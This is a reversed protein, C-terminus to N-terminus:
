SSDQSADRTWQPQEKRTTTRLIQLALKPLVRHVGVELVLRRDVGNVSYSTHILIHLTNDDDYYYYYYDYDFYYFPSSAIQGTPVPQISHVIKQRTSSCTSGNERTPPLILDKLSTRHIVCSNMYM